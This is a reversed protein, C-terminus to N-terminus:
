IKMFSISVMNTTMWDFVWNTFIKDEKEARIQLFSVERDVDKSTPLLIFTYTNEEGNEWVVKYKSGVPTISKSKVGNGELSGDEHIVLTNTAYTWTGVANEFTFNNENFSDIDEQTARRLVAMDVDYNLDGYGDSKDMIYLTGNAIYYKYFELKETKETVVTETLTSEYVVNYSRVAIVNNKLTVYDTDMALAIEKFSLVLTNDVFEYMLLDDSDVWLGQLDKDEVVYDSKKLDDFSKFTLYEKNVASTLFEKVEELSKLEGVPVESEDENDPPEIQPRVRVDPNLMRWLIVSASARTVSDTPAFTGKNDVGAIIGMSYADLVSDNYYDDITGFDAISDTSVRNMPLMEMDDSTICRMILLAMEQRSCPNNITSVSFEKEYILGKDLAIDYAPRWWYSSSSYKELEALMNPYKERVCLTIFEARTVSRDPDFKAVGDVPETVGKLLGQRTMEMIAQSAWHYDSVDSFTLPAYDATVANVMSVCLM